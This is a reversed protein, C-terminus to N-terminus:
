ENINKWYIKEKTPYINEPTFLKLINNKHIKFHKICVSCSLQTESSQKLEGECIPCQLIHMYKKLYENGLIM